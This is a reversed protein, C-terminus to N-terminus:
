LRLRAMALTDVYAGDRFAYARSLGEREFGFREYLAIARHNDAYVWLELRKLNWWRDALDLAASVLATGAGRGAFGDHVAMGFGGVHNRRINEDRFLGLCGIVRGDILAVLQKLNAPRNAFRKEREAVATFPLQLTGWYAHPQNFLETVAPIDAPEMGRVVIDPRDSM